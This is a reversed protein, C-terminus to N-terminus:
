GTNAYSQVQEGMVQLPLRRFEQGAVLAYEPGAAVSPAPGGSSWEGGLNRDAMFAVWFDGALQALTEEADQEAGDVRYGFVVQLTLVVRMLGTARDTGAAADAVAVYASVQTPLSEPVGVHVPVDLGGVLIALADLAATVDIAM